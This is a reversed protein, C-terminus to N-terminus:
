PHREAVKKCNEIFDEVSVNNKAINCWRCCPVCNSLEYGVSNNVRDVGNYTFESKGNSTRRTLSPPKGCYHCPQSTIVYFQEETLKFSLGRKKAAAFCDAFFMYGASQTRKRIPVLTRSPSIVGQITYVMCGCSKSAGSRLNAGDVDERLTGCDCKCTWLVKRKPDKRGPGVVLWRGFRKGKLEIRAPV